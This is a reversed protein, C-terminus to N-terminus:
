RLNWLQLPTRNHDSNRRLQRNAATVTDAMGARYREVSQRSGRSWVEAVLDPLGDALRVRGCPDVSWRYVDCESGPIGVFLRLLPSAHRPLWSYISPFLDPQLRHLCDSRCHAGMSRPVYPRQDEAVLQSYRGSVGDGHWWGHHLSFTG